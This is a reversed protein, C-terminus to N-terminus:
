EKEEEAITKFVATLRDLAAAIPSDVCLQTPPNSQLELLKTVRDQWHTVERKLREIEEGQDLWRMQDERDFRGLHEVAEILEEKSCESLPKGQWTSVYSM